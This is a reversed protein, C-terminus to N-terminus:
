RATWEGLYACHDHGRLRCRTETVIVNRMGMTELAGLLFGELSRCLTVHPAGFDYLRYDASTPSALGSEARGTDHHQRWLSAAKGLIYDPSGIKYFLKYLVPLNVVAANRGLERVLTMKGDGFLKEAKLNLDVFCAFDYWSGKLCPGKALARTEPGLAALYEDWRAGHHERLYAFRATFASGKM